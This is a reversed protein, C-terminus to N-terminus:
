NWFLFARCSIRTSSEAKSFKPQTRRGSLRLDARSLAMYTLMKKDFNGVQPMVTNALDGDVELVDLQAARDDYTPASTVDVSRANWKAMMTGVLQRVVEPQDALLRHSTVDGDALVDSTTASTSDGVTIGGSQSLRDVCATETESM